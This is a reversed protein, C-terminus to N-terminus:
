CCNEYEETAARDAIYRYRFGANFGKLGKFKFWWNFDV